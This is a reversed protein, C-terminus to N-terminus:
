VGRLTIEILFERASGAARSRFSWSPEEEADAACSFRSSIAEVLLLGMRMGRAREGQPQIGQGEDRVSLQLDGERARLSVELPRPSADPPYAHLVVNNCAESVVTRLDDVVDPGAGLERARAGVAERVSAVNEAQADAKISLGATNLETM